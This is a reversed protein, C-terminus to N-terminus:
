AAFTLDGGVLYDSWGNTRKMSKLEGTIGPYRRVSEGACSERDEFGNGSKLEGPFELHGILSGDVDIRGRRTSELWGDLGEAETHILHVNSRKEIWV